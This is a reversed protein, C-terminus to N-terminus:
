PYPVERRSCDDRIEFIMERSVGGFVYFTNEKDRLAVACEYIIPALCGACCSHGSKVVRPKVTNAQYTTQSPVVSCHRHGNRSNRTSRCCEHSRCCTRLRNQFSKLLIALERRLLFRQNFSRMLPVFGSFDIVFVENHFTQRDFVHFQAHPVTNPCSLGM